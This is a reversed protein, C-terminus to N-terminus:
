VESDMQRFKIYFRGALLVMGSSILVAAKSALTLDLSYYFYIMFFIMLLAGMLSLLKEHNAYGLILLSISLLIGPASIFGLFLSACCALLVPEKKMNDSSGAAWAIVLILSITLEINIFVTSIIVERWAYGIESQSTLFVVMVCLSFIFAYFLPIYERKTKGYTLLAATIILQFLFFLNLVMERLGPEKMELMIIWMVSYLVVFSSLFRDVSMKYVNYTILTIIFAALPIGWITNLILTLGAVFLIKGIAMSCFSSQVMFNHLSGNENDGSTKQLVVAAIIFIVSWIVLGPKSDFDIIGASGLFGIFFSSSLFAGIGFLIRLYLPIRKEMERSVIFHEIQGKGEILGKNSLIDVFKQASIDTSYGDPSYKDMSIKDPM